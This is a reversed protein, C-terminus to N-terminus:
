HGSVQMDMYIVSLLTFVYAQILAVLIELAYILLALVVPAMSAAAGLWPSPIVQVFAVSALLIGFLVAHGALMNAMLRVALILHRIVTGLLEIPWMLPAIWLPVGHPIFNAFYGILGHNKIGAGIGIFLVLLALAFNINPNGTATASPYLKYHGWGITPVLGLLNCVLIFLFFTLFLSLYKRGKEEGMISYVMEDRFYIVSAEMANMLVGRPVATVRKQYERGVYVVMLFTVVTAIWMVVTHKTLEFAVGGMTFLTVYTEDVLHHLIESM